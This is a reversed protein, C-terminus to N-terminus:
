IPVRRASAEVIDVFSSGASLGPLGIETGFDNLIGCFRVSGCVIHLASSTGRLEGGTLANAGGYLGYVVKSVCGLTVIVGPLRAFGRAQVSAGNLTEVGRVGGNPADEVTTV